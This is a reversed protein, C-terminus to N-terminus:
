ALFTVFLAAASRQNGDTVPHDKVVPAFPNAAKHEATLYIDIGDLSQYVVAITADTRADPDLGFLTDTSFENAIRAIVTRAEAYTLTWGPAV